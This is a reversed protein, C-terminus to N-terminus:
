RAAPALSGRVRGSGQADLVIIVIIAAALIVTAIAWRVRAKSAMGSAIVTRSKDVNRISAGPQQAVKVEAHTLASIELKRLLENPPRKALEAAVGDRMHEPVLAPVSEAPSTDILVWEEPKVKDPRVGEPLKEAFDVGSPKHDIEGQVFWIVSGAGQCSQCLVWGSGRCTGCPRTGSGACAPCREVREVTRGNVYESRKKQGTGICGWCRMQGGHCKRCQQRGSM